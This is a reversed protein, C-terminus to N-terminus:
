IEERYVTLYTEAALPVCLCRICTSPHEAQVSRWCPFVILDESSASRWWLAVYSLFLTREDRYGESLSYINSCGGSVALSISAFWARRVENTTSLWMAFSTMADDFCRPEVFVPFSKHQHRISILWSVFYARNVSDTSKYSHIFNLTRSPLAKMFKSNPFHVHDKIIHRKSGWRKFM